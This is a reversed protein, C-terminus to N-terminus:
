PKRAQHYVAIAVADFLNQFYRERWAEQKGLYVRLEPYRHALFRAVEKKGARGDGLLTKRVTGSPVLRLPIRRSRVRRECMKAVRHLTALSADRNPWTAEILVLRPRHLALFDAFDRSLHALRAKRTGARPGSLVGAHRLKGRADLVALGLARLGPDLGLLTWNNKRM